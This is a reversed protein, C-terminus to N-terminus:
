GSEIWSFSSHMTRMRGDLKEQRGSLYFGCDDVDNETLDLMAWM